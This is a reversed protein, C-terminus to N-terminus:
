EFLIGMWYVTQSKDEAILGISVNATTEAVLFGVGGIEFRAGEGPLYALGMAHSYHRSVMIGSPIGAQRLIIAWLMARSDCDNRGETAATVLNQFDSGEFDREYYFSQVWFLVQEAFDRESMGPQNIRREVQFAIDSIRDFSDRYIARYFRRWADMWNLAFQYRKLVLFERDVLYQAAEADEEFIWADIGLGFIPARIRNERPFTYETIPGPALRDMDRPAISDLASIHLLLLDEREAPGYALALLLPREGAREELEIALAWGLMEGIGGLTFSLGILCANKGRYTFFDFSGTNNLRRQVDLVMAELSPYPATGGPPAHYVIIDFRAGDPNMFSFRDRGNGDVFEYCVPLDVRFGWTPSFLPVAFLLSCLSFYLALALLIKKAKM